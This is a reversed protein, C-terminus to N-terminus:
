SCGLSDRASGSPFILGAAAMESTSKQKKNKKKKGEGANLAMEKQKSGSCGMKDSGLGRSDREEDPM